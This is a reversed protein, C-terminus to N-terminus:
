NYFQYFIKHTQCIQSRSALDFDDFRTHIPLGLALNYYNLTDFVESSCHGHFFLLLTITLDSMDIMNGSYSRLDFITTYEHGAQHM